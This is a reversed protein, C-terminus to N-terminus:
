RSPARPRRRRDGGPPGAPEVFRGRIGPPCWGPIRALRGGGAPRRGPRNRHDGPHPGVLGRPPPYQIALPGEADFYENQVDILILARRPATM